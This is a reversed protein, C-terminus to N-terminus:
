SQEPIAGLPTNPVLNPYAVHRIQQVREQSWPAENQCKSDLATSVWSKQTVRWMVKRVTTIKLRNVCGCQDASRPNFIGTPTVPPPAQQSSFPTVTVWQSLLLLISVSLQPTLFTPKFHPGVCLSQALDSAGMDGLGRSAWMM